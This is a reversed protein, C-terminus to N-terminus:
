FIEKIFLQMFLNKKKLNKLLLYLLKSECLKRFKEANKLKKTIKLPLPPIIKNKLFAKVLNNALHEITKM